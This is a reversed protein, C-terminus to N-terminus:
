TLKKKNGSHGNPEQGMLRALVSRSAGCSEFVLHSSQTGVASDGLCDDTQTFAPYGVRSLPSLVGLINRFGVRRLASPPGRRGNVLEGSAQLGWRVGVRRLHQANKVPRQPAQWEDFSSAEMPPRWRARGMLFEFIGKPRGSRVVLKARRLFLTTPSTYLFM